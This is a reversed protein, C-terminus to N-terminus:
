GFLDGFAGIYLFIYVVICIVYMCIDFRLYLCVCFGHISVYMMRQGVQNFTECNGIQSTSTPVVLFEKM